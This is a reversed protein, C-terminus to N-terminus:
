TKTFARSNQSAKRVKLVSVSNEALLGLRDRVQGAREIILRQMDAFFRRFICRRM